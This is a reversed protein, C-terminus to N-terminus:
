GCIKECPKGDHDGDLRSQHCVRLHYIAEECSSMQACVRKGACSQSTNDSRVGTFQLLRAPLAPLIQRSNQQVSIRWQWPPVRQEIPLAWLGLRARRAGVEISPLTPDSSYRTFVWAAGLRIMETGADVDGVKVRAVLRGYRDSGRPQIIVMQGFLIAALEIKSRTGYPQGSEPADIEALRVRIQRHDTTLVRLTDGDTVAIVRARFVPDGGRALM